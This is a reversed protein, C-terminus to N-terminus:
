TIFTLKFIISMLSSLRADKNKLCDEADALKQRFVLTNLLNLLHFDFHM